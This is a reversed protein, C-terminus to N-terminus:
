NYHQLLVPPIQLKVLPSALNLVVVLRPTLSHTVSPICHKGHKYNYHFTEAYAIRNNDM